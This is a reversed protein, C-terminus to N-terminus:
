FITTLNRIQFDRPVGSDKGLDTLYPQALRGLEGGKNFPTLVLDRSLSNHFLCEVLVGGSLRALHISFFFQKYVVVTNGYWSAGTLGRMPRTLEAHRRAWMCLVLLMRIGEGIFRGM